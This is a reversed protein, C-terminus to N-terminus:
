VDADNMQRPEDLVPVATGAKKTRDAVVSGEIMFPSEVFLMLVIM